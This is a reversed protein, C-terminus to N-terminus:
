NTEVNLLLQKQGYNVTLNTDRSVWCITFKPWFVAIKPCQYQAIFFFVLWILCFYWSVLFTDFFSVLFFNIGLHYWLFQWIKLKRRIIKIQSTLKRQKSIMLSTTLSKFITLIEKVLSFSGIISFFFNFLGLIPEKLTIFTDLFDWFGRKKQKGFDGYYLRSIKNEKAIKLCM